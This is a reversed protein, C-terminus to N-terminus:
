FFGVLFLVNSVVFNLVFSFRLCVIFLSFFFCFFVLLLKLNAVKLVFYQLLM